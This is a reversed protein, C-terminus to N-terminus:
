RAALPDFANKQHWVGARSVEVLDFRYPCPRPLQALYCQAARRLRQWKRGDVAMMGQAISGQPRYKVEVFCLTGGDMAILDIEGGGARYRRSILRLGIGSLYAAALEEGALGDAYRQSM